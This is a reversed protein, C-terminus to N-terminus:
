WKILEGEFPLGYENRFFFLFELLTPFGDGNALDYAEDARLQCGAIFIEAEATIHVQQVSKCTEERLLRCEKTRMGTYLSLTDGPCTPRKRPQRITSRKIGQEVLPAFQKKFNYAPM